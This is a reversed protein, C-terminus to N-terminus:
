TSGTWARVECKRFVWRLIITGEIDPDELHDRESLNEVKFGTYVEVREWVHQM